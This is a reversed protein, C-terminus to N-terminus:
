SIDSELKHLDTVEKMVTDVIEDFDEIYIGKIDTVCFTPTKCLTANPDIRFLNNSITPLVEYGQLNNQELKIKFGKTLAKDLVSRVFNKHINKTTPYSIIAELYTTLKVNLYNRVTRKKPELKHLTVNSNFGANSLREGKNYIHVLEVKEIPDLVGGKLSTLGELTGLVLLEDTDPVDDVSRIFVVEAEKEKLLLTVVKVIKTDINGIIAVKM